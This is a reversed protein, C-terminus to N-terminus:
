LGLEQSSSALPDPIWPWNDEAVYPMQPWQPSVGRGFLCHYVLAAGLCQMHPGVDEEAYRGM